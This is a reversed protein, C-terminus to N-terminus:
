AAAAFGSSAGTIPLLEDLTDAILEVPQLGTNVDYPDQSVNSAGTTSFTRGDCMELILSTNCLEQVARVSVDPPVVISAVITPNRRQMTFEGNHLATRQQPSALVTVDGESDLLVSRGDLILNLVGKCKACIM